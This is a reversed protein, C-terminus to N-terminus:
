FAMLRIDSMVAASIEVIIETESAKACCPCGRRGAGIIVLSSTNDGREALGCGISDSTRVVVLPKGTFFGRAIRSFAILLILSSFETLVRIWDSKGLPGTSATISDMFGSRSCTVEDKPSIIEM